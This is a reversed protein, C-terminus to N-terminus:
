TLLANKEELFREYDNQDIASRLSDLVEENNKAEAYATWFDYQFQVGANEVEPIVDELYNAALNRNGKALYCLGLNYDICVETERDLPELERFMELFTIADDYCDEEFLDAAYALRRDDNEFSEPSKVGRDEEDSGTEGAGEGFHYHTENDNVTNGNGTVTLNENGAVVSSPSQNGKTQSTNGSSQYLSIGIGVVTLIIGLVATVIGVKWYYAELRNRKEIRKKTSKVDRKGSRKRKSSM